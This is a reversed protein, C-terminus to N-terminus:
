KFCKFNLYDKPHLEKKTGQYIKEITKARVNYDMSSNIKYLQSLNVGTKVALDEMHIKKKECYRILKNTTSKSKRM